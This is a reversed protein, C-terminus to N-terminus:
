KRPFSFAREDREDVRIKVTFLLKNAQTSMSSVFASSPAPSRVAEIEEPTLVKEERAMWQHEDRDWFEHVRKFRLSSDTETEKAEAGQKKRKEGEQESGSDDGGEDIAAASQAKSSTLHHTIAVSSM